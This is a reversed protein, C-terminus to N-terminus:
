IGPMPGIPVGAADECCAGEGSLLMLGEFVCVLEEDSSAVAVGIGVTGAGAIGVGAAQPCVPGNVIETLGTGRNTIAPLENNGTRHGEM